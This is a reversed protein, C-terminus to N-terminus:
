KTSAFQKILCLGLSVQLQKCVIPVSSGTSIVTANCLLRRTNSYSYPFNHSTVSNAFIQRM